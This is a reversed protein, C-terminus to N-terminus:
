TTPMIHAAMTPTTTPIVPVMAMSRTSAKHVMDKVLWLQQTPPTTDATRPTAM